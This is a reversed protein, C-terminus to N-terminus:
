QKCQHNKDEEDIKGYRKFIIDRCEDPYGQRPCWDEMFQISPRSDPIYGLEEETGMRRDIFDELVKLTVEVEEKEYILEQHKEKLEDYEDYLEQYTSSNEIGDEDYLDEMDDQLELIKKILQEKNLTRLAFLETDTTFPM